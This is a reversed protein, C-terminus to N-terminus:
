FPVEDNLPMQFASPKPVAINGYMVTAPPTDFSLVDGDTVPERRIVNQYTRGNKGDSTELTNWVQKGVTNDDTIADGPKLQFVDWCLAALSELHKKRTYPNPHGINFFELWEFVEVPELVHWKLLWFDGNKKGNQFNLRKVEMKHRGDPVDLQIFTNMSPDPVTFFGPTPTLM